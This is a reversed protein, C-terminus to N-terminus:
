RSLRSLQPAAVRDDGSMRVVLGRLSVVLVRLSVVLPCASMSRSPKWEMRGDHMLMVLVVLLLRRPVLPSIENEM